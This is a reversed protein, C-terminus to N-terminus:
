TQLDHMWFQACFLRHQVSSCFSVTWYAECLKLAKRPDGELTPSALVQDTLSTPARSSSAQAEVPEHLAVELPKNTSRAIRQRVRRQGGVLVHPPVELSRTCPICRDLQFASKHM